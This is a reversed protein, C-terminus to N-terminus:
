RDNKCLEGTDKDAQRPYNFFCPHPITFILKGKPKLSQSISAFLCDLEPIDMLVMNSVIRDFKQDKFPLGNILDYEYFEINPYRDCAIELLMKSGDVAFVNAGANSFEKSLWGYGCGLDLIDLNEINGLSTWLVNEFMKYIHDNTESVRTYNSAIRNWDQIDSLSQKNTM